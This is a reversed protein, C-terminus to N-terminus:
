NFNQYQTEPLLITLLSNNEILQFANNNKRVNSWTIPIDICELTCSNFNTTDINYRVNYEFNSDIVCDSSNILIKM